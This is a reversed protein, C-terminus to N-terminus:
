TSTTTAWTIKTDSKPVKSKPVESEPKVIKVCCDEGIEGRKHKMVGIKYKIVSFM